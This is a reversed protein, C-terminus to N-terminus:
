SLLSRRKEEAEVEEKSLVYEHHDSSLHWIMLIIIGLFSLLAFLHMQWIITFGFLFAFVGILFGVPTNKPLTIPGYVPKEQSPHEKM